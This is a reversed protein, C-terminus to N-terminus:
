TCTEKFVRMGKGTGACGESTLLIHGDMRRINFALKEWASESLLTMMKMTGRYVFFEDDVRGGYGIDPPQQMMSQTIFQNNRPVYNKEMFGREFPCGSEQSADGSSTMTGFSDEEQGDLPSSPKSSARKARALLVRSIDQPSTMTSSAQPIHDPCNEELDRLYMTAGSDDDIDITGTTVNGFPITWAPGASRASSPAAALLQTEPLSSMGSGTSNTDIDAHTSMALQFRHELAVLKAQPPSEQHRTAPSNCGRAVTTTTPSRPFLHKRVLFGARPNQATTDIVILMMAYVSVGVTAITPLRCRRVRYVLADFAHRAGANPHRACDPDTYPGSGVQNALLDFGTFHSSVESHETHPFRGRHDFM